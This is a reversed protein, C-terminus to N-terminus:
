MIRVLPLVNAKDMSGLDGVRPRNLLHKVRDTGALWSLSGARWYGVEVYELPQLSRLALSPTSKVNM